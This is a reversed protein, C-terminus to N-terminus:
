TVFMYKFKSSKYECILYSVCWFLVSLWDIWTAANQIYMWIHTTQNSIYIDNTTSNQIITTRNLFTHRNWCRHFQNLLRFCHQPDEPRRPWLNIQSWYRSPANNQSVVEAPNMRYYQRFRKFSKGDEEPTHKHGQEWEAPLRIDAM